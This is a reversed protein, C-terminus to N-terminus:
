FGGYIYPQYGSGAMFCLSVLLLALLGLDGLLGLPGRLVPRRTVLRGHLAQLAAHVPLSFIIGLALALWFDVGTQLTLAFSVEASGRYLGVLTGLYRLAFALNPSRFFVWGTMVVVLTYVVQLPSWLKKLWRGFPGTELAVALGHLAGWALFNWTVGHWLGTLVFVVLVNTYQLLAHKGRRARELPYFVYDRFWSSLSIHWRRWFDAVGRACYPDHFNEALKFGFIRGLGLAMDTYGSFDFYIQLTYAAILVWATAPTINPLGQAFVGQDVVRGVTDAILAKKGLGLIFRRLGAAVDEVKFSREEIQTAVDRYRVIPGATLKPFMLIYLAFRLLSKEHECRGKFVDILYSIVQFSIFSLGLPFAVWKKLYEDLNAPWGAGITSRAYTLLDPWYVTFVKFLALVALNLVIATTLARRGKGPRTRDHAVAFGFAFNAVILAAILAFALPQGWAYFFISAGILTLNRLRKGAAAYLFLTLPFFLFLFFPSHFSM